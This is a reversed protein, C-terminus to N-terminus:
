EKFFFFYENAESIRYEVRNILRRAIVDSNDPIKKQAKKGCNKGGGKQGGGGGNGFFIFM